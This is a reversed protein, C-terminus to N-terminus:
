FSFQYGVSLQLGRPTAIAIKEGSDETKLESAGINYRLDGVIAGPGVKYAVGAGVVISFLVSTDIDLDYPVNLSVGGSSAEIEASFEGVPISFKPGVLPTITFNDNIKFDWGVLIPIDITNYAGNMEAKVAYGDSIMTMKAGVMNYTFGLEPQVVLSAVLSIKVFVTGGVNLTGGLDLDAFDMNDALTTGLGVGFIGRVGVSIEATAMSVAAVAAVACAILKKM